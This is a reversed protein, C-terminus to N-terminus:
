YQTRIEQNLTLRMRVIQARGDPRKVPEFGTGAITYSMVGLPKLQAYLSQDGPYLRAAVLEFFDTGSGQTLGAVGLTILYNVHTKQTVQNFWGAPGGEIELRLAPMQDLTWQEAPIDDTDKGDMLQWLNVFRMLDTGPTKLFAKVVELGQSIKGAPIPVTRKQYM